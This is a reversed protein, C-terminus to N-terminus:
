VIASRSAGCRASSNASRRAPTLRMTSSLAGPVSQFTKRSRSCRSTPSGARVAVSSLSASSLCSSRSSAASTSYTTPRSSINAKTISRPVIRRTRRASCSRIAAAASASRSSSLFGSAGARSIRMRAASRARRTSHGSLPPTPLERRTNTGSSTSCVTGKARSGQFSLSGSTSTSCLAALVITGEASIRARGTAVPRMCRPASFTASNPSGTNRM